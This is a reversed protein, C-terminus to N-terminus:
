EGEFLKIADPLLDDYVVATRRPNENQLKAILDRFCNEARFEWLPSPRVAKQATKNLSPVRM